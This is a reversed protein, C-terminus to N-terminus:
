HHHFGSPEQFPVPHHSRPTDPASQHCQKTDLVWKKTFRSASLHYLSFIRIQLTVKVLFINNEVQLNM